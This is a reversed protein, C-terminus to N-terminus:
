KKFDEAAEGTLGRLIPDGGPKSFFRLHQNNKMKMTLQEYTEMMDNEKLFHHMCSDVESLLNLNVQTDESTKRITLLEYSQDSKKLDV